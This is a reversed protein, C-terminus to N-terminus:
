VPLRTLGVQSLLEKCLDLVRGDIDLRIGEHGIFPLTRLRVRSDDTADDFPCAAIEAGIGIRVVNVGDAIEGM